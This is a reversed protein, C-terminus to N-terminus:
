PGTQAGTAPPVPSSVPGFQLWSSAVVPAPPAAVPATPLTIQAAATLPASLLILAALAFHTRGPAM